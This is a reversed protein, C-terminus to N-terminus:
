YRIYRLHCFSQCVFNKSTGLELSPKVCVREDTEKEDEVRSVGLFMFHTWGEGDRWAMLLLQCPTCCVGLVANVSYLMCQNRCEFLVAYVSFQMWQTSCRGLILQLRSEAQWDDRLLGHLVGDDVTPRNHPISCGGDGIGDLRRGVSGGGSQRDELVGGTETSWRRCTWRWIPEIVAELPMELTGSDHGGLADGLNSLWLKWDSRWLQDVTATIHM